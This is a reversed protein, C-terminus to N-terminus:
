NWLFSIGNEGSHWLTRCKNLRRSPVLFVQFDFAATIWDGKGLVIVRGDWVCYLLPPFTYLLKTKAKNEAYHFSFSMMPEVAHFLCNWFKWRAVSPTPLKKKRFLQLCLVKCVNDWSSCQWSQMATITWSFASHSHDLHFHDAPEQVGAAPPVMTELLQLHSSMDGELLGSAITLLLELLSRFSYLTWPFCTQKFATGAM